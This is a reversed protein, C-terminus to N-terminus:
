RATSVAYALSRKLNQIFKARAIRQGDKNLGLREKVDAQPVLLYLLRLENNARGKRAKKLALYKNGNVEVVHAKDGLAQPRDAKKIMDKPTRRVAKTPIALYRRLPNKTGGFEQLGMFKDRSYVTATLNAKTAKEVRIGQVIWNRRLTFRSPMNGRVEKQVEYATETLAKAVAFNFQQAETLSRLKKMAQMIDSQVSLMYFGKGDLAIEQAVM